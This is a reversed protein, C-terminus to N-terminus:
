NSTLVMIWPSIPTLNVLKAIKPAECKIIVPQHIPVNKIKGNNPFTM